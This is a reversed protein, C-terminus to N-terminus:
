MCRVWVKEDNNNNNNNSVTCPSSLASFSLFFIIYCFTHPPCLEFLLQQDVLRVHPPSDFASAFPYNFCSVIIAERKGNKMPNMIPSM